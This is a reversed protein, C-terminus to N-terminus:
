ITKISLQAERKALENLAEHAYGNKVMIDVQTKIIEKIQAPTYHQM